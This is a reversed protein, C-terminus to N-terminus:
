INLKKLINDICYVYLFFICFIKFIYVVVHQNIVLFFNDIKNFILKAYKEYKQMKQMKQM